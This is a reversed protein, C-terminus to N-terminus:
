EENGKGAPCVRTIMGGGGEEVGGVGVGEGWWCFINNIGRGCVINKANANSTMGQCHKASTRRNKLM